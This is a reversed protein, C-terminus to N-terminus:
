TAAARVEENLIGDGNGHELPEEGYKDDDVEAECREHIWACVWSTLVKVWKIGYVSRHTYDPIIGSVCLQTYVHTDLSEGVVEESDKNQWESFSLFIGHAELLICTSKRCAPNGPTRSKRSDGQIKFNIKLAPFSKSYLQKQKLTRSDGQFCSFCHVNKM